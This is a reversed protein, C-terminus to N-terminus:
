DWVAGDILGAELWARLLGAARQAAAEDSGAREALSACMHPFSAGNRMADLAAAEDDTMSRFQADGDAAPRWILWEVPGTEAPVDLEGSAVTERRQLAQPAQHTLSLRRLSPVFSLRLTQWAEPPAAALQEFTLPEADAADFAEGLAWEFRAMDAAAPTASFPPTAALFDALDRGFWRVSPHKSPHVAIYARAMMDFEAPGAMALLGSFDITLAEILRLAYADRYVALLTDRDAKETDLVRARLADAEPTGRMWDAFEAQLTSLASM